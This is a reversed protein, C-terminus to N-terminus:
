KRVNILPRLTMPIEYESADSTVELFIIHYFKVRHRKSWALVGIPKQTKPSKVLQALQFEDKIQAFM